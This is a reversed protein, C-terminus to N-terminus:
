IHYGRWPPPPSPPSSSTSLPSDFHPIGIFHGFHHYDSVDADMDFELDEAEIDRGYQDDDESFEFGDDVPLHCNNCLPGGEHETLCRPCRLVGDEEDFILERYSPPFAGKFLGDPGNKDREVDGTEEAKRKEHQEISEDSPM